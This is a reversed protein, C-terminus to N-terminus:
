QIASLIIIITLLLQLSPVKTSAASFIFYTREMVKSATVNAESIATVLGNQIICTYNDEDKVPVELVSAVQLTGATNTFKTSSNLLQGTQNLWRVEPQPFWKHAQAFLTGNSQRTFTPASFAAVRLNVSTTGSVKPATVSCRYVGEDELKVNRLLLSANGMSIANSFLEARNKFQTNQGQLQAEKKKYEYVVGSLTDKLWTISVDSFQENGSNSLFRCDLVVDEALNGVTSPSRSNVIGRSLTQHISSYLIALFLWFSLLFLINVIVSVGMRRELVPKLPSHPHPSDCGLLQRTSSEWDQGIELRSCVCPYQRDTRCAWDVARKVAEWYMPRPEQSESSLRLLSKLLRGVELKKVRILQLVLLTALLRLIEVHAKVGFSRIGKEKLFVNAFFDVDLNLFSSLRDTCEWYGDEHQLEFLENWAVTDSNRRIEALSSDPTTFCRASGLEARRLKKSYVPGGFETTVSDAVKPLLRQQLYIEKEQRRMGQLVKQQGEQQQQAQQQPSAKFFRGFATSRLSLPESLHRSSSSFDSFTPPFPLHSSFTPVAAMVSSHPPPPPPLSTTFMSRTSALHNSGPPGAFQIVRASSTESAHSSLPRESMSCTSQVSAGVPSLSDVKSLSDASASFSPLYLSPPAVATYGTSFAYSPM